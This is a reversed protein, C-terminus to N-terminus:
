TEPNLSLFIRNENILPARHIASFNTKGIVFVAGHYPSAQYIIHGKESPCPSGLKLEELATENVSANYLLDLNNLTIDYAEKKLQEDETLKCFLTAPGKLAIAVKYPPIKSTDHLDIHWEVIDVINNGAINSSIGINCAQNSCLNLKNFTRAMISATKLSIENNNGIDQLFKTYETYFKQINNSAFNVVYDSAKDVILKDITSKEDETFGLDFFAFQHEQGLMTLAEEFSSTLIPTQTIAGNGSYHIEKSYIDDM